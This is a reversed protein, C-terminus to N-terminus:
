NHGLLGANRTFGHICIIASTVDEQMEHLPHTTYLPMFIKTFPNSARGYPSHVLFDYRYPVIDWEYILKKTNDNSIHPNSRYVGILSILVTLVLLALIAHPINFMKQCSPPIINESSHTSGDPLTTSSDEEEELREFNSGRGM